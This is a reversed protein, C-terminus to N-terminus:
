RWVQSVYMLLLLLLLRLPFFSSSFLLLLRPDVQHLKSIGMNQLRMHGNQLSEQVCVTEASDETEVLDKPLENADKLTWHGGDGGKRVFNGCVGLERRISTESVAKFEDFIEHM